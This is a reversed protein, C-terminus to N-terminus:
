ASRAGSTRRAADILIRAAQTVQAIEVHEDLTHAQAISGPGFVVTPIGSAVMKTSDSGYPVGEPTSDIGNRSCIMSLLRVIPEDAAVDMADSDIFPAETVIRIGPTADALEAAIEAFCRWVAGGNESPLYRYDFRLRARSPVTNPGEGAEFATCTLTAPGLLPHTETRRRMEAEFLDLLKRAAVMADVGEHPKATHAARGQVEVFWRVCGKCARVVRLETPEGAIGMDYCADREVHHTVGTFSFEEDSAALFTVDGPPPDRALDRMALMFAALCAKDDVAGRGYLRGGALRPTFPDAMGTVQVTDLHGEWIMSPAGATGKIRAIVNPREPAVLDVEVAIGAKRLWDAVVTGVRAENFWDDPDGPQRFAINVSPVSVLLALLKVVEDDDIGAQATQDPQVSM